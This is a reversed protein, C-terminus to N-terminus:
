FASEYRLKKLQKVLEGAVIKGSILSPPLGPGPVTLQGTYFLNDLKKNKMGPKLVATQRLTNALGYANGKFANYDKVFDKIGYARDVVIDKSFSVGCYKELKAIMMKKYWDRVHDNEELGPAVPILIFLNEGGEPAVSTDTKSPCCVYYLPDVPWKPTDYIERAHREFDTDFFLNHHELRPLKKNVGIYFVLCSPALTRSDWYEKSYNRYQPPLLNQEVHHYDASAVVADTNILHDNVSVGTISKDTIILNDVPANTHITVGLSEALQTMAETIKGMGGMPYYTGQTLAAHNMLTYLAPIKDPMAGLFLVPFELLSVLAPDKFYSRVYSRVSSFINMGLVAKMVPLRAYELWSYSPSQVLEKMGVRYKFAAEKLFKDLREASGKERQEFVTRLEDYNAPVKLVDDKGYIVQFGPDLKVLNYYDASSKGFANFFDEFVDPMWYWSPGMDFTFGDQHFVRARGGPQENKEFVTVDHGAKALFSSAALGSVGSGIVSIKAM